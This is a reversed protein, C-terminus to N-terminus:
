AAMEETAQCLAPFVQVSNTWLREVIAEFSVGVIQALCAATDRVFAPENRRGRRPTPALYPCDTEVLLREVPVRQVMARLPAANKFTLPGAFSVFYGLALMRELYGADTSSFCHLIGRAAHAATAAVVDNETQRNHVIVPLQREEALRLHWQFAQRQREPPTHDRYYDLGTEGIAVVEPAAALEAVADFDAESAEAASNPHIGVAARAGRVRRALEVAARSSARDYGVLVMRTVGAANARAVVQDRDLDFAADMLHAHTDVLGHSSM